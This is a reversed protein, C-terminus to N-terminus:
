WPRPSRLEGTYRRTRYEGNLPGAMNMSERRTCGFGIVIGSKIDVSLEDDEFEAIEVWQDPYARTIEDWTMRVRAPRDARAAEM